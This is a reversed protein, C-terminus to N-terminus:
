FHEENNDGCSQELVEREHHLDRNLADDSTFKNPYRAKLKNIVTNCAETFNTDLEDFMLALYWMVDGGEEILNVTDGAILAEFIESSETSVGMAAHLLRYQRLPMVTHIPSETQTEKGYFIIKKLEDLRNNVEIMEEITKLLRDHVSKNIRVPLHEPTSETRLCDKIFNKM